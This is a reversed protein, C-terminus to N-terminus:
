ILVSYTTLWILTENKYSLLLIMIHHITIAPNPPNMNPITVAASKADALVASSHAIRSTGLVSYVWSPLPYAVWAIILQVNYNSNTSEPFAGHPYAERPKSGLLLFTM